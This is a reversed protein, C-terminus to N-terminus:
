NGGGKKPAPAPASGGSKGSQLGLKKFYEEVVSQFGKPVQDSGSLYLRDNSTDFKKRMNFEWSKLKELASQTLEQVGSPDKYANPDGLQQLYKRVEEIDKVDNRTAGNALMQKVLDGADANLQAANNALNKADGGTFGGRADGGSMATSPTGQNPDQGGGLRM